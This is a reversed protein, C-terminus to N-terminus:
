LLLHEKFSYYKGQGVIVHDLVPIGIIKGSNVLADTLDFDEKSPTCDGSPHNHAVIAGACRRRILLNFTERPTVISANISGQSVIEEFVVANKTNLGIVHFQEVELHELKGRMFDYTDEPSKITVKDEDSGYACKAFKVIASLQKARIPGISKILRLEDESANLIDRVTPFEKLIARATYADTRERLCDALIAELHESM